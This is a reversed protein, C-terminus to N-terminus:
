IFWEKLDEARMGFLGGSRGRKLSWVGQAVEEEGPIGDDVAELTLMITIWIGEPPMCRYVKLRKTAIIDLHEQSSPAQGGSAQRYWHM